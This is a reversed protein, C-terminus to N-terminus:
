SFLRVPCIVCTKDLDKTQIILSGPSHDHLTTCEGKLKSMPLSMTEWAKEKVESIGKACLTGQFVRPVLFAKTELTVTETVKYTIFFLISVYARIHGHFRESASLYMDQKTKNNASSTQFCLATKTM